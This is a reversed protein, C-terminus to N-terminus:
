KPTAMCCVKSKILFKKILLSTIYYCHITVHQTHYFVARRLEFAATRRIEGVPLDSIKKGLVVFVADKAVAAAADDTDM